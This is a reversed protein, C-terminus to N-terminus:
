RTEGWRGHFVVDSQVKRRGGGFNGKVEPHRHGILIMGIPEFDSPIGFNERFLALEKPPAIFVAGLGLNVSELLVLMSAFAADIYWVPVRWSPAQGPVAKDPESYRAIYAQESCMPVFVVPAERMERDAEATDALLQPSAAWLRARDAASEVVLWAYGQTFGASPGRQAVLSLQAIHEPSVPANTFARVMRRRRVM